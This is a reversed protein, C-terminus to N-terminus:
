YARFLEEGIMDIYDEEDSKLVYTITGFYQFDLGCVDTQHIDKIITNFNEDHALSKIFLNGNINVIALGDVRLYSREVVIIDGMNIKFKSFNDVEVKLFVTELPSKLVDYLKNNTSLEIKDSGFINKNVKYLTLNIPLEEFPSLYNLIDM